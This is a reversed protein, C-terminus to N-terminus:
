FLKAYKTYLKLEKKECSSRTNQLNHIGVSYKALASQSMTFKQQVNPKIAFM